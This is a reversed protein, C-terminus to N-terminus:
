DAKQMPNIIDPNLGQYEPRAGMRRPMVVVLADNTGNHIVSHGDEGAQHHFYFGKSSDYFKRMADQARSLLEPDFQGAEYPRILHRSPIVRRIDPFVGPVVFFKRDGLMYGGDSTSELIVSNGKVSKAVDLPILISFGPKQADELTEYQVIGAFLIHGDTGSVLARDEATFEINVGVLYARIDKKAACISAAKIASAPISVKM